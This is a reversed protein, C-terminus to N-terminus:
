EGRWQRAPGADVHVFASSRYAGIGGVHVRRVFALLSPLAVGVLRFDVANGLVHQSRRAVHRGKKRLMENLKDSRYGSVVEVRRAGLTVVAARLTAIVSPAMAHEEWNTRDRLLRRLRTSEEESPTLDLAEAEHTHLNMLTAAVPRLRPEGPFVLADKKTDRRTAMASVSPLFAPTPQASAGGGPGLAVAAVAVLAARRM